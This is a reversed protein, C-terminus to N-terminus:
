VSRTEDDFPDRYTWTRHSKTWSGPLNNMVLKMGDEWLRKTLKVRREVRTRLVNSTISTSAGQARQEAEDLM